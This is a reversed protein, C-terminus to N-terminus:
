RGISSELKVINENTKSFAPQVTAHTEKYNKIENRTQKQVTDLMWIAWSAENATAGQAVCKSCNTHIATTDTALEPSVPASPM